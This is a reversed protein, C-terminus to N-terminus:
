SSKDWNRLVEEQEKTLPITTIHTSENGRFMNLGIHAFFLFIVTGFASTLIVWAIGIAEYISM